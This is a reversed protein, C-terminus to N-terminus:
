DYFQLAVEDPVIVLIRVLGENDQLANEPDIKAVAGDPHRRLSGHLRDRCDPEVDGLRHKLNVANIGSALHDKATLQLPAIDQCEELLFRIRLLLRLRAATIERGRTRLSVSTRVGSGTKVSCRVNDSRGPM